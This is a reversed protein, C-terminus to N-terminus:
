NIVNFNSLIENQTRFRKRLMIIPAVYIYMEVATKLHVKVNSIHKLGEHVFRNLGCWMRAM